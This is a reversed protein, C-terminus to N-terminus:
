PGNPGPFAPPNLVKGNVDFQPVFTPCGFNDPPTKTVDNKVNILPSNVPQGKPVDPVEVTVPNPPQTTLSFAGAVRTTITYGGAKNLYSRPFSLKGLDDTYDWNNCVLVKSGQNNTAELWSLIYKQKFNTGAFTTVQYNVLPSFYTNVTNGSKSWKFPTGPLPGPVLVTFQPGVVLFPSLTSKKTGTGTSTAVLANVPAPSFFRFIREAFSRPEAERGFASAPIFCSTKLFGLVEVNTNGKLYHQLYSSPEHCEGIVVGDGFSAVPVTSWDFVGSLPMDNTSDTPAPPLGVILVADALRADGFTLPTISDSKLLTTIQQWSADYVWTGANNHGPPELLWTGDHSQVPRQDATTGLGRVALAGTFKLTAELSTASPTPAGGNNMCPFLAVGLAAANSTSLSNNEDQADFKTEISQLILYGNYTAGDTGTGANKMATAYGAEASSNGFENKALQSVTTFNCAAKSAFQPSTPLDNQKEDCATLAAAALLLVASYRGGM